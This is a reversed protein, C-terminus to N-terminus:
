LRRINGVMRWAAFMKTPLVPRDPTHYVGGALLFVGSRAGEMM